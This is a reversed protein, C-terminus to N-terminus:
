RIACVAARQGEHGRPHASLVRQAAPCCVLLLVTVAVEGPPAFVGPDAPSDAAAGAGVRPGGVEGPAGRPLGTGMRGPSEWLSPCIGAWTRWCVSGEPGWEGHSLSM